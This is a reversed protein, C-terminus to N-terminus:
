QDGQGHFCRKLIKSGEQRMATNGWFFGLCNLTSNMTMLTTVWISGNVVSDYYIKEGLRLPNQIGFVVATPLYCVLCLSVVFVCTKAMKLERLFAM